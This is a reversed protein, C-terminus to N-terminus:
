LSTPLFLLCHMLAFWAIVRCLSFFLLGYRPPFYRIVSVQNFTCGGQPPHPHIHRSAMTHTRSPWWGCYRMRTRTKLLLLKVCEAPMAGMKAVMTVAGGMSFDMVLSSLSSVRSM